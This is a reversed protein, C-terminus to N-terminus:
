QNASAKSQRKQERWQRGLEKMVEAQTIGPKRKLLQDRVAKSHQKVFLNYASPAAQKKAKGDPTVEILTSRCKGCRHRNLDVSRSHRGVTFSCKPNTCAWNFKFAIQYNHTTTVVVDPVKCMAMKAWRKFDAGHPPKSVGDFIWVAAHVLEHLLTTRLKEEDDVVKTSLEITARRELPMGPTMNTSIKQLRTLGATTNLKRSWQVDVKGLEGRFAKRNFEDFTAKTREERNKRFFAKLRGKAKTTKVVPPVFQKKTDSSKKVRFSDDSSLSFDSECYDDASSSDCLDIAERIGKKEVNKSEVNKKPLTTEVKKRDVNQELLSKPRQSSLISEDDPTWEDEEDEEESETDYEDHEDDGDEDTDVLPDDVVANATANSADPSPFGEDLRPSLCTTRGTDISPSVTTNQLDKTTIRLKSVSPRFLRGKGSGNIRNKHILDAAEDRSKMTKSAYNEIDDDSDGDINIIPTKSYNGDRKEKSMNEPTVRNQKEQAFETTKKLELGAEDEYEYEDATEYVSEIDEEDETETEEDSMTQSDEASNQVVEFTNTTPESPNEASEYPKERRRDMTVSTTQEEELEVFEAIPPACECEQEDAQVASISVAQKREIAELFDLARPNPLSPVFSQIAKGLVTGSDSNASKTERERIMQRWLHGYKPLFDRDFREKIKESSIDYDDQCKRIFKDVNKDRRTTGRNLDRTLLPSLREIRTMTEIEFISIENNKM